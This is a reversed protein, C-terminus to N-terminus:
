MKTVDWQVGERNSYHVKIQYEYVVILAVFKSSYRLHRSVHFKIQDCM